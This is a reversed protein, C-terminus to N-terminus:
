SDHVARLFYAVLLLRVLLWTELVYAAVVLFVKWDEMTEKPLEYM